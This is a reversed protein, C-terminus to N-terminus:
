SACRLSEVMRATRAGAPQLVDVSRLLSRFLQPLERPDQRELSETAKNFDGRAFM